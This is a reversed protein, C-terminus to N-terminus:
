NASPFSIKIENRIGQIENRKEKTKTAGPKSKM